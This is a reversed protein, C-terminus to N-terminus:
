SSVDLGFFSTLVAAASELSPILKVEAKYYYMTDHGYAATPAMTIILMVNM